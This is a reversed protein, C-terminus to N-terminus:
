IGKLVNFSRGLQEKDPVFKKEKEEDRGDKIQKSFAAGVKTL